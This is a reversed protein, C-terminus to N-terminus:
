LMRFLTVIWLECSANFIRGQWNRISRVKWSLSYFCVAFTFGALYIARSCPTSQQQKIPDLSWCNHIGDQVLNQVGAEQALCKLSKHTHELRAGTYGLKEETLVQRKHKQNKDILLGTRFTNALSTQRSPVREDHFKRRFKRWCKRATWIEHLHWVSIPTARFYVACHRFVSSVSQLQSCVALPTSLQRGNNVFWLNGRM